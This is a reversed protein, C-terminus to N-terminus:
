RCRWRGPAPVAPDLFQLGLHQMDAPQGVHALDGGAQRMLQVLGQGRDQVVGVGADVDGLLAAVLLHLLDEALDGLLRRAGAVDDAAQAAEELLAAGVHHRFVDRAGHVLRDPEALDVGGVAADLELDSDLRPRGGTRISRMWIWCTSILRIFFAASAISVEGRRSRDTVIPRTEGSCTCTATASEPGPMELSTACFSNWGKTVVLACPM